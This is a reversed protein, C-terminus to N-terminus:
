ITKNKEHRNLKGFLELTKRRQEMHVLLIYFLDLKMLLMIILIIIILYM